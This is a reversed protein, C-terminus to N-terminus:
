QLRFISLPQYKPVRNLHTQYLIIHEVKFACFQEQPEVIEELSEKNFPADDLWKRALTIHPSFQRKELSFGVDTCINYVDRQLGMLKQQENIGCWLIRPSDKRGFTGIGNLELHFTPHNELGAPLLNKVDNLQTFSQPNGLFALTIHYDQPHVWSKFSLRQKLLDTWNKMIARIHQPISIALFYHTHQAM